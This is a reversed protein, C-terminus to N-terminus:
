PRCTDSSKRQYHSTMYVMGVSGIKREGIQYFLPIGSIQNGSHIQSTDPCDTVGLFPRFTVFPFIRVPKIIDIIVKQTWIGNLLHELSTRNQLFQFPYGAFGRFDVRVLTCLDLIRRQIVPNTEILNGDVFEQPVRDYFPQFANIELTIVFDALAQFRIRFDTDAFPHVDGSQNSGLTFYVSQQVTDFVARNVAQFRNIGTKRFHM